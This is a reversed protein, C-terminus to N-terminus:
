AGTFFHKMIYGTQGKFVGNLVEVKAWKSYKTSIKKIETSKSLIVYNSKNNWNEPKDVLRVGAANTVGKITRTSTRTTFTEGSPDNWQEHWTQGSKSPPGYTQFYWKTDQVPGSKAFNELTVSDGSGPKFVVGGWHFNFGKADHTSFAEGVDPSAYKNLGHKKDFAKKDKASKANYAALAASPTTGLGAAVLINDRHNEPLGSRSTEKLKGNNDNYVGYPYEDKGAEGMVERSMKGCDKWATQSTGTGSTSFSMKPIVKKLTHRGSGNPANGEISASQEELEVGSKKTALERNSQNILSPHAYCTKNAINEGTATMGNDAIRVDEKADWQKASQSAVDKLTYCQSVKSSASYSSSKQLISNNKGRAAKAGMVDAENELAPNSNINMGKGQKEPKVRGQRQQMVHTLEHGILEQGKQTGPNFQGPAFHVDNGQTYALAGINTAQGSNTHINVGSFDTGFSSEMKAQVHSPLHTATGTSGPAAKQQQEEDGIKAQTKEEEEDRAFMQAPHNNFLGWERVTTNNIEKLQAIPDIKKQPEENDYNQTFYNSSRDIFSHSM